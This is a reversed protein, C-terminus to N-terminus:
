HKIKKSKHQLILKTIHSHPNFEINNFNVAAGESVKIKQGDISKKDVYTVGHARELGKFIQIFKDVM